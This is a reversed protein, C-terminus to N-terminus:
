AHDAECGPGHCAHQSLPTGTDAHLLYDDLLHDLAYWAPPKGHQDVLTDRRARLWQEVADGRQPPTTDYGPSSHTVAALFRRFTATM